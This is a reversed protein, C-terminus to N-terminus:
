HQSRKKMKLLLEKFNENDINELNITKGKNNEYKEDDGALETSKIKREYVIDPNKLIIRMDSIELEPYKKNIKQLIKSYNLQILQIIAPHDAEVILSNKDIDLIRSYGSIKSGVISQWSHFMQSINQAETNNINNFISLNRLVNGAKEM